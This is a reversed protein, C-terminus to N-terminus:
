LIVEYRTIDKIPSIRLLRLILEIMNPLITNFEKTMRMRLVTYMYVAYVACLFVYTEFKSTKVMSAERIGLETAIKDIEEIASGIMLYQSGYTPQELIKGDDLVLTLAGTFKKPEYMWTTWLWYQNPDYFCLIESALDFPQKVSLETQVNQCFQNFRFVLTDEGHLLESTQQAFIKLQSDTWKKSISRISFISKIIDRIEIENLNLVSDPNLQKKFYNSKIDLKVGIDHLINPAVENYVQAIFDYTTHKDIKLEIETM